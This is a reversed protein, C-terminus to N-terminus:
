CSLRNLDARSTFGHSTKSSSAPIPSLPRSRSAAQGGSSKYTVLLPVHGHDGTILEAEPLNGFGQSRKSAAELKRPRLGSDKQSNTKRRSAAAPPSPGIRLVSSDKHTLFPHRMSQAAMSEAGDTHGRRVETGQSATDAGM